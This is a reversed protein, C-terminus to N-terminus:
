LFTPWRNPFAKVQYPEPAERGGVCFPCHGTPLTPREQRAGSAAVWSDSLADHRFETLEPASQSAAATVVGGARRARCAAGRDGHVGGRAARAGPPSAARHLRVGAPLARMPGCARA